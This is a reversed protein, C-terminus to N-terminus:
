ECETSIPPRVPSRTGAIGVSMEIQRVGAPKGSLTRLHLRWTPTTLGHWGWATPRSVSCFSGAASWPSPNALASLAWLSALMLALGLALLFRWEM